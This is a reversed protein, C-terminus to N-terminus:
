KRPFVGLAVPLPTVPWPLIDPSNTPSGFQKFRFGDSRIALQSEGAGDMSMVERLNLPLGKLFDALEWLTHGGQSVLILIRGSTDEAVTTRNAVVPSRRVRIQGFRDLLMHSQAAQRYPNSRLDFASYRLDLVRAQPLAPDGPEALFLAELRSALHGQPRGDVVLLGLYSQDAAYQGANFVALAGKRLLWEEASFGKEGKAATFVQFRHLTPDVRLVALNGDGSRVISEAPILAFELGPRIQRWVIKDGALAGPAPWGGLAGLVFVLSALLIMRRIQRVNPMGLDLVTLSAQCSRHPQEPRGVLFPRAKSPIARGL